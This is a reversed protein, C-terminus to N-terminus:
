KTEIPWLEKPLVFSSTVRLGDQYQQIVLLRRGGASFMVVLDGNRNYERARLTATRMAADQDLFRSFGFKSVSSALFDSKKLAWQYAARIQSETPIPRSLM